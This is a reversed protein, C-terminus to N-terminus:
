PPANSTVKTGNAPDVGFRPEDFNANNDGQNFAADGSQDTINNNFFNKGFSDTIEWIPNSANIGTNV